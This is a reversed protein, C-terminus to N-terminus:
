ASHIREGYRISRREGDRLRVILAGDEGLGDGVGSVVSGDPSRVSVPLGRGALSSERVSQLVDRWGNTDRCAPLRRELEKLTRASVEVRPEPGPLGPISGAVGAKGPDVERPDPGLNLGLGLLVMAEGSPPLRLDLLIGGVKRSGLVLDNPWDFLLEPGGSTLVAERVALATAFGYRWATSLDSPPKVLLTWYLGGPPSVFDRGRRGQGRSQSLALVLSGEPEGEEHLRRAINMTSDVDGFVHLVRGYIPDQMRELLATRFAAPTM